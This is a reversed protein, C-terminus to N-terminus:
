HEENKSDKCVKIIYDLIREQDLLSLGDFRLGAILQGEEGEHARVVHTVTEIVHDVEDLPIWIKLDEGTKVPVPSLISAGGRSIDLLSAEQWSEGEDQPEVPNGVVYVLKVTKLRYDTRKDTREMPAAQRVQLIHAADNYASVDAPFSYTADGSVIFSVNVAKQACMEHPCVAPVFLELSLMDGDIEVIKGRCELNSEQGTIMVQKGAFIIKQRLAGGITVPM